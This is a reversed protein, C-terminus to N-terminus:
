ALDARGLDAWGPDARRLDAWGPDARRLDAWGPDAPRLDARGPDYDDPGVAADGGDVRGFDERARQVDRVRVKFSLLL